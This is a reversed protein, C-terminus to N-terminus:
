HADRRLDGRKRGNMAARLVSAIAAMDTPSQRAFTVFHDVLQQARSARVLEGLSAAVSVAMALSEVPMCLLADISLDRHRAHMWECVADTKADRNRIPKAAARKARKPKPM